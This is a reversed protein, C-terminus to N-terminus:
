SAPSQPSASPYIFIHVDANNRSQDGSGQRRRRLGLEALHLCNEDDRHFVMVPALELTRGIGRIEIVSQQWLGRVGLLVVIWGSQMGTQRIIKPAFGPGVEADDIVVIRNGVVLARGRVQHRLQLVCANRPLGILLIDAARVAWESRHIQVSRFVIREHIEVVDRIRIIGVRGVADRMHTRHRFQYGIQLVVVDRLVNENSGIQAIVAM